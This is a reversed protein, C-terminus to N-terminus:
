SPDADDFKTIGHKKILNQLHQRSIGISKATHTVNFNNGELAKLVYGKEFLDRAAELSHFVGSENGLDLEEVSLYEHNTLIVAQEVRHMLERVNGEWRHSKLAARAEESFGRVARHNAANAEALFSYALLLIDEGRDRLPPLTLTVVKLRFYLDQRFTSEKVMAELDRNTAAVVRVDVKQPDVGGVRVVTRQELARLLKVQLATSLEAIEDLFLTGTHALEFKGPKQSAAGSFAGKEYGFLESELLTEPIAACDIIVLPRESRPSLDHLVHAIAEKGTGSEGLLLVTADTPAVKRVNEYLTRMAPCEGILHRRKELASRLLANEHELQARKEADRRKADQGTRLNEVTLALYNAVAEFLALDTASYEHAKAHSDVYLVGLLQEGVKLPAAMVTRLHYISVSKSEVAEKESQTDLLYIAKRSEFVQQPITRSLGAIEELPKRGDRRAVLPKLAGNETMYLIGREARAIEIVNDVAAALFSELDQASAAGVVTQLLIQVNRDQIPIPVTASEVVPTGVPTPDSLRYVITAQGVGIVDGDALEKESVKEGNLFTGNSSSGDVLKWGKDQRVLQCHNRSAQDTVLKVHSQRSRGITIIPDSIPVTREQGLERVVVYPM